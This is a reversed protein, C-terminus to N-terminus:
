LGRAELLDSFRHTRLCLRSYWRGELSASNLAQTAATRSASVAASSSGASPQSLTSRTIRAHESKGELTRLQRLECSLRRALARLRNLAYRDLELRQPQSGGSAELFAHATASEALLVRAQQQESEIGGHHNASPPPAHHARDRTLRGARGRKGSPLLRM